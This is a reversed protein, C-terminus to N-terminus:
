TCLWYTLSSNYLTKVDQIWKIDNTTCGDEPMVHNPMFIATVGVTLFVLSFVLVILTFIFLLLPKGRKIGMIGLISGVIIVVDSVIIV